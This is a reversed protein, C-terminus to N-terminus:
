GIAQIKAKLTANISHLEILVHNGEPSSDIIRLGTLYAMAERHFEVFGKEACIRLCSMATDALESADESLAEMAWLHMTTLAQIYLKSTPVGDADPAPKADILMHASILVALQEFEKQLNWDCGVQYHGKAFRILDSVAPIPKLTKPITANM